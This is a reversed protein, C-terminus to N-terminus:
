NPILLQFCAAAFPRKRMLTLLLLLIKAAIKVRKEGTNCQSRNFFAM